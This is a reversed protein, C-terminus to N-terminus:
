DDTESVNFASSMTERNEQDIHRQKRYLSGRLKKIKKGSRLIGGKLKTSETDIDKTTLVKFDKINIIVAYANLKYEGAGLTFAEPHEDKLESLILDNIHCMQQPTMMQEEEGGLARSMFRKIAHHSVILERM